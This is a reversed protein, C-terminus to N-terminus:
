AANMVAGITRAGGAAIAALFERTQSTASRGPRSVLVAAGCRASIVQADAGSSWSPTDVIVLEYQFRLAELMASLSSSELLEQPNPPIPGSTIVSLTDHAPVPHVLDLESRGILVSSLGQRNPLEFIQHQRPERLDMDILLTRVNCQAYALALNAAIFSRGEKRESSVIAIANHMAGARWRLNIQLRLRRISEACPNPRESAVILEPSFNHGPGTCPFSYQKALARRLEEASILGRHIAVEGFPLGCQKQVEVIAHVDDAKLSGLAILHEGISHSVRTPTAFPLPIRDNKM